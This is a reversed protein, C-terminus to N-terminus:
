SGSGWISYGGTHRTKEHTESDVLQMKGPKQHHHWTYGDPTEGNAIQEQQEQTFKDRLEPDNKVAEQFKQNCEKEQAPRDGKYDGNENKDLTTEYTPSFEPFVGEVTKGNPLKVTDRKYPVDTDPHVEGEYRENICRIQQPLASYKEAEPPVDGVKDRIEQAEFKEPGTAPKDKVDQTEPLEFKSPKNEAVSTAGETAAKAIESITM